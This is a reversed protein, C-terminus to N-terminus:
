QMYESMRMLNIKEATIDYNRKFWLLRIEQREAESRLIFYLIYSLSAASRRFLPAYKKYLERYIAMEIYSIFGEKEYLKIADDIEYPIKTRIESSGSAISALTGEKILGGNIREIAENNRESRVAIANIINRLDILERLFEIVPGEDGNYFRFKYLLNEYYAQELRFMSKDVDSTSKISNVAELLKTGYWYKVALEVVEEVTKQNILNSYDEKSIAGGLMGLPLSRDVLLFVDTSSIDYNLIKSYLILKINDIDWKQAYAFLLERAPGSAYRIVKGVMKMMHANLVIEVLDPMKYASSFADIEERYSTNSLMHLFDEKSKGELQYLTDRTLFDQSLAKLRGYLGTYTADM